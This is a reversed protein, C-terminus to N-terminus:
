IYTVPPIPINFLQVWNVTIIKSPSTKKTPLLQLMWTQKIIAM